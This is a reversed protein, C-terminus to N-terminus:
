AVSVFPAIAASSSRYFWTPVSMNRIIQHYKAPSFGAMVFDLPVQWLRLATRAQPRNATMHAQSGEELFTWSQGPFPDPFPGWVPAEAHELQSWVGVDWLTDEDTTLGRETDLEQTREVECGCSRREGLRGIPQVLSADGGTKRSDVPLLLQDSEQEVNAPRNSAGLEANEPRSSTGSETDPAIAPAWSLMEPVVAPAWSLM